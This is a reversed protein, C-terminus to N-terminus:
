RNIVFRVVFKTQVPQAFATDSLVSAGLILVALNHFIRGCTRM